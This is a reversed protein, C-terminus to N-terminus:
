SQACIGRIVHGVRRKATYAALAPQAGNQARAKWGWTQSHANALTDFPLILLFSKISFALHIGVPLLPHMIVHLELLTFTTQIASVGQRSGFIDFELM